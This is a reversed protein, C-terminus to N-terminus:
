KVYTYKICIMPTTGHFKFGWRSGHLDRTYCFVGNWGENERGKKALGVAIGDFANGLWEIGIFVGNDINIHEQSLDTKVWGGGYEGHSIYEKTTIEKGPLSDAEYVHVRFSAHPNSREYNEIYVYIEKLFANHHKPKLFIGEEFGFSLTTRNVLSHRKGVLGIHEHTKTALVVVNNLETNAINLTVKTFSDLDSLRIEKREFGLRSFFLSQVSNKAIAISFYGENDSSVGNALSSTTILVNPIVIGNNDVVLGRYTVVQSISYLPYFYLLGVFLYYKM